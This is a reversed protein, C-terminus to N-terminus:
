VAVQTRVPNDNDDVDYGILQKWERKCPIKNYNVEKSVIVDDDTQTNFNFSIDIHWNQCNLTDENDFSLLVLNRSHAKVLYVESLFKRLETAHQIDFGLGTTDAFNEPTLETLNVEPM